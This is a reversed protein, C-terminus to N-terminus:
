GLLDNHEGIRPARRLQSASGNCIFPLGAYTYSTDLDDHVVEVPFGRAVFHPDSLVEEPSYVVTAAIGHSQAGMFFEYATSHEAMFRIAERGANFIAQAEPDGAVESLQVGGRAVGMELFFAEDYQDRVGADSLWDLLRQYEAGSRPPVGSHVMRGDASEAFSSTTMRVSAHRGTQRQVTRQAVLYDYSAAETTVNAAAHLSVDIFQGVGSVARHLVATLAAMTAFISGTQYGQNGGGRVPPISHDDYGCSWVPGGAALVTLDTSLEAARPGSRGFPTVSVWIMSPNQPRLDPYDLKQAALVGPMEAELVIDASAILTRLADADAGGDLDLTVSLKNTNYHWWWLSREPDEIDGAFPAWRRTEHGGRPEVVIVEAGYIAFLKGAFCARSSALEVVRLGALPGLPETM